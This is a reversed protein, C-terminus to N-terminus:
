AERSPGPGARRLKSVPIFMPTPKPAVHMEGAVATKATFGFKAYFAVAGPKADVAVGVCGYESAMRLTLDFVAMLLEKGVGRGRCSQDVALRALRLIPLPYKPLKRGVLSSLAESELRGPSVTAFGLIRRNELAV